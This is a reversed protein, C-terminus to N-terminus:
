PMDGAQAQIDLEVIKDTNMAFLIPLSLDYVESPSKHRSYNLCGM